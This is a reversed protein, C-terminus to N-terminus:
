QNANAIIRTITIPGGDRRTVQVTVRKFNTPASVVTVNGTNGVNVYQVTVSRNFQGYGSLPDTGSFGNWDDVDNFDMTSEPGLTSSGVSIFGGAPPTAEDWRATRIQDMMRQASAVAKTEDWTEVTGRVSRLFVGLLMLLLPVMILVGIMVETLTVGAKFVRKM